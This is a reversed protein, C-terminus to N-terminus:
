STNVVKIGNEQSQVQDKLSERKWIVEGCRNRVLKRATLYTLMHRSSCLDYCFLRVSTFKFVLWGVITSVLCMEGVLLYWRWDPNNELLNINMGFLSQYLSANAM